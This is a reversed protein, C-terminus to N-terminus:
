EYVICHLSTLDVGSLRLVRLRGILFSLNCKMGKCLASMFIWPCFRLAGFYVMVLFKRCPHWSWESCSFGANEVLPGPVVLNGCSFILLQIGVECWVYFNNLISQFRFSLGKMLFREHSVMFSRPSLMPPLLIFLNSQMLNFLGAFSALLIFLFRCFPLFYKCIRYRILSYYAFYMLFMCLQITM